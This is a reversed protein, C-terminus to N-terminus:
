LVERALKKFYPRMEGAMAHIENKRQRKNREERLENRRDIDRIIDKWPRRNQDREAVLELTRGDLKNWPIDLAHTDGQNRLSHVEFAGRTLNRCIFMNPDYEALREPIKLVSTDLILLHPKGRLREYREDRIQIKLAEIM